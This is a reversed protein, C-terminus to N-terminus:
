LKKKAAAESLLYIWWDIIFLYASFEANKGFDVSLCPPSFFSHIVRYHM